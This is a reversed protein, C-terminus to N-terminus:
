IWGLNFMVSFMRGRDLQEALIKDDVDDLM